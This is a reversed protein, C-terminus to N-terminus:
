FNKISRATKFIITAIATMTAATTSLKPKAATMIVIPYMVGVMATAAIITEKLTHARIKSHTLIRFSLSPDVDLIILWSPTTSAGGSTNVPIGSTM